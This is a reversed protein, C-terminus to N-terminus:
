QRRMQKNCTVLNQNTDKIRTMLWKSEGDIEQAKAYKDLAKRFSEIAMKNEAEFTDDKNFTNQLHIIGQDYNIDGEDVFPKAEEKYLLKPKRPELKIKYEFPSIPESAASITPTRVEAKKPESSVVIGTTESNNKQTLSKIINEVFATIGTHSINHRAQFSYMGWVIGAGAFVLILLIFIILRM